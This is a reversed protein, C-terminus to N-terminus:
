KQERASLGLYEAATFQDQSDPNAAIAEVWADFDTDDDVESEHIARLEKHIHDLRREEHTLLGSFEGGYGKLNAIAEQLTAFQLCATGNRYTCWPLMKCWDPSYSARFRQCKSRVTDGLKYTM